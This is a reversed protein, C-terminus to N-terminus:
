KEVAVITACIPRVTVHVQGTKNNVRVTWLFVVLACVLSQRHLLIYRSHSIYVKTHKTSLCVNDYLDFYKEVCLKNIREVCYLIKCM